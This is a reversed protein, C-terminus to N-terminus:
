LKGNNLRRQLEKIVLSPKSIVGDVPTGFRKQLAKITIPGMYGDQRVDLLGQLAKVVLSPESIVGDVPTGFYRQLAKITAPGFYGDVTLNAKPRGNQLLDLLELNQAASGEYNTIGYDKALEKRYSFSYPKGLDKLYEVISTYEKETSVAKVETKPAPKVTVGGDLRKLFAKWASVDEVFPKPCIKGTVDYHRIVPVKGFQKRLKEVVLATREVTDPHFSGDKEICMEIGITTLNANGNYSSTSARLYSLKPSRENAHYAVENLPIIEIAEKKDVFIHAGAYRYAGGDAGDFFDQHNQASGGPSATYHLVIARVGLLKLGPRSYKNKIVYDKKYNLAVM